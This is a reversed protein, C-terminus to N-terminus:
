WWYGCSDSEVSLGTDATSHLDAAPSTLLVLRASEDCTAWVGWHTPVPHPTGLAKLKRPLELNFEQVCHYMLIPNLRLYSNHSISCSWPWTKNILQFKVSQEAQKAGHPSIIRQTWLIERRGSTNLILSQTLNNKWNPITTDRSLILMIEPQWAPFSKFIM